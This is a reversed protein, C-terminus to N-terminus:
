GVALLLIVQLLKCNSKSQTLVDTLCVLFKLRETVMCVDHSSSSQWVYSRGVYLNM